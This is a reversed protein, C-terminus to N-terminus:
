QVLSKTVLKIMMIYVFRHFQMKGGRENHKAIRHQLVIKNHLYFNTNEIGTLFLEFGNAYLM